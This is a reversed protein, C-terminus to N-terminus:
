DTVDAPKLGRQALRTLLLPRVGFGGTDVLAVRDRGRILAISSWGLGGHCVTKGPYGQIVIDIDYGDIKMPEFGEGVDTYGAHLSACHPFLPGPNRQAVDPSGVVLKRQRRPPPLSISRRGFVLSHM